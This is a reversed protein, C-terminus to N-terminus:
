FPRASCMRLRRPVFAGCQVATVTGPLAADVAEAIAKVYEKVISWHNDSMCVLAIKRRAMNQEHRITKDGSLLVDFGATEAATLLAGNKLEAWGLEAARKVEHAVLYRALPRPVNQDLLVKL